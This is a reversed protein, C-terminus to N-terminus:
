DLAKALSMRAATTLSHPLAAAAAAAAATTHNAGKEGRRSIGYFVLM